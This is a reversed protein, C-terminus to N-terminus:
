PSDKGTLDLALKIGQVQAACVSAWEKAVECTKDAEKAARGLEVKELELRAVRSALGDVQLKYSGDLYWTAWLSATLLLCACILGVYLAARM